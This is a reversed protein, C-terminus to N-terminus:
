MPKLYGELKQIRQKTIQEICGYYVSPAISGGEYSSKEFACNIDRFRIWALEADILLKERQSGKLNSRLQQYVQNLQKDAAEASLGACANIAAQTQPSKCELQGSLMQQHTPDVSSPTAQDSNSQAPSSPTVEVTIPPSTVQLQETPLCGSTLVLFAMTIPWHTLSRATPM